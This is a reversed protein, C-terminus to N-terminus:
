FSLDGSHSLTLKLHKFRPTGCHGRTVSTLMQVVHNLFVLFAYSLAELFFIFSLVM